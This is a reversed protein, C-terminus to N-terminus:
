AIIVVRALTEEAEWEEVAGSLRINSAHGSFQDGLDDNFRSLM